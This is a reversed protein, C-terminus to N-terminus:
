FQYQQIVCTRSPRTNGTHPIKKKGRGNTWGIYFNLLFFVLQYLKLWINKFISTQVAQSIAEPQYSRKSSRYVLAAFFNYQHQYQYQVVCSLFKCPRTRQLFRLSCLKVVCSWVLCSTQVLVPLGSATLPPEPAMTIHIKLLLSHSLVYM